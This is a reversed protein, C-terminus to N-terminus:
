IDPYGAIKTYGRAHTPDGPRSVFLFFLERQRGVM